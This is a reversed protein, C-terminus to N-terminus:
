QFCNWDARAVCNPGSNTGRSCRKYADCEKALWSARNPKDTNNEYDESRKAKTEQRWRRGSLRRIRAAFRKM